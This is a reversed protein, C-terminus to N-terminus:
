GRKVFRVVNTAPKEAEEITGRIVDIASLIADVADQAAEHRGATIRGAARLESLAQDMIAATRAVAGVCDRVGEIGIM